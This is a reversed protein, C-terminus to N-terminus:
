PPQGRREPEELFQPPTKGNKVNLCHHWFVSLAAMSVIVAKGKQGKGRAVGLGSCEPPFGRCCRPRGCQGAATCSTGLASGHLHSLHLSSPRSPVTRFLGAAPNSLGRTQCLLHDLYVRSSALRMSILRDQVGAEPRRLTFIDQRGQLHQLTERQSPATLQEPFSRVPPNPGIVIWNADAKTNHVVSQFTVTARLLEKHEDNWYTMM